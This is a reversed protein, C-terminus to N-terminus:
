SLRLEDIIEQQKEQTKYKETPTEMPVEDTQTPMTSVTLKSETKQSSTTTIKGAINNRGSQCNSTRNESTNRKLCDM